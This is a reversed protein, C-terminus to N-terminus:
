TRMASIEAHVPVSAHAAETTPSPVLFGLGGFVIGSLICIVAFTTQAINVKTKM